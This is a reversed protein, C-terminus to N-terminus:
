DIRTIEVRRNTARGAATANDAIPHSEGYGKEKLRSSAVGQAVLYECVAASRAKSLTLNYADTNRSDTHGAVRFRGDPSSALSRAVRDLTARSGLTLHATGPDFRVGQLIFGSVNGDHDIVEAHSSLQTMTEYNM